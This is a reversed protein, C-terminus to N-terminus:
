TVRQGDRTDDRVAQKQDAGASLGNADRFSPRASCGFSTQTDPRRTESSCTVVTAVQVALCGSVLKRASDIFTPRASRGTLRPSVPLLARGVYHEFVQSRTSVNAQIVNGADDHTQETQEVITDGRVTLADSYSMEETDFGKYQGVKRGAGDRAAKIHSM